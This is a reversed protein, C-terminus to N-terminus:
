TKPPPPACLPEELDSVEKNNPAPTVAVQLPPPPEPYWQPHEHKVPEGPRLSDVAIVLRDVATGLVVIADFLNMRNDPAKAPKNGVMEYVCAEIRGVAQALTMEPPGSM